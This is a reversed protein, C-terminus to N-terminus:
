GLGMATRLSLRELVFVCVVLGVNAVAAVIVDIFLVFHLDVGM